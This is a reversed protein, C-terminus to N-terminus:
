IKAKVFFFEVQERDNHIQKILADVNSFKKEPRIFKKFGITIQQDYIDAAFNLIFTELVERTVDIFTPNVGLNAMGIYKEGSKLTVTVAYVGAPPLAVLLRNFYLNATPFGLTKGRAFGHQVYSTVAYTRGLMKNAYNLNGAQILNRIATSSIVNGAETLLPRIIVDFGYNVGALRLSDTNGNGEYGYSFNEGVVMCKSQLPQLLKLFDDQTLAALQEDFPIDLLIDIGEKALMAQKESESLLAVPIRNPNICAYPHNSFTFVATQLNLKQAYAKATRIVDMHGRHLGDFTGLALVCPKDAQITQLSNIIKM